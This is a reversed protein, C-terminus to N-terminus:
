GGDWGVCPYVCELFDEVIDRVNDIGFSFRSNVISNVYSSKPKNLSLTKKIAGIKLFFSFLCNVLYKITRKNVFKRYKTSHRSSYFSVYSSPLLQFGLELIPIGKLRRKMAKSMRSVIIGKYKYGKLNSKIRRIRTYDLIPKYVNMVELALNTKTYVIDANKDKLTFHLEALDNLIDDSLDSVLVEKLRGVNYCYDRKPEPFRLITKGDYKVQESM